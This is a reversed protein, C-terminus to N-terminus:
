YELTTTHKTLPHIKRQVRNKTGTYSFTNAEKKDAEWRRWQAENFSGKWQNFQRKEERTKLKPAKDGFKEILM